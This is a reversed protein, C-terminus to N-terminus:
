YRAILKRGGEIIERLEAVIRIVQDIKQDLQYIQDSSNSQLAILEDGLQQLREGFGPPGGTFVEDELKKVRNGLEVFQKSMETPPIPTNM